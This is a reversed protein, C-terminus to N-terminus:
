RQKMEDLSVLIEQSLSIASSLIRVSNKDFIGNRIIGFSSNIFLKFQIM